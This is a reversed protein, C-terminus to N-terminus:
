KGDARKQPTPPCNVDTLHTSAYVFTSDGKLFYSCTTRGKGTSIMKPRSHKYTSDVNLLFIQDCPIGWADNKIQIVLQQNDFSFYAEANDGGFTLQKVNKLHTEETYHISSKKTAGSVQDVKTKDVIKKENSNCAIVIITTLIFLTIKKM